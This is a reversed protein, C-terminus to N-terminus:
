QIEILGKNKKGVALLVFRDGILDKESVKQHPDEIKQNNLYGGGGQILRHTEGKSSTLGAQVFLDVLKAGTVSARPLSTHPIDAAIERLVEINLATEAGPAAGKTAKLARDLGTSGHILRTLEEALKRQATNPIYDSQQMSRELADIESLDLFTLMKLMKIVDADPIGILYQYFQYPSFKEPDLWVAGGESKGFKKGDSRTLLPFTLGYATKSELKRILDLGATINGWQDSGGLQLEVDLHKCLHYFDYAQLMQYSFETFSIGEESQIRARVSEKALMSGVRFHRGVDRLFDLFSFKGLWEYNDIMQASAPGESFDLAREFQKRLSTVNNTLDQESLLPREISKGSPDGVRGTAGGLIVIPTHGYRQFWRMVVIGLWHGLHLSDATPDFGLYFRIPQKVRECLDESTIADILGRTKLCDIITSM